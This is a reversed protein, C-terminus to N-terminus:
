LFIIIEHIYNVFYEFIMTVLFNNRSFKFYQSLKSKLKHDYADYRCIFLKLKICKIIYM